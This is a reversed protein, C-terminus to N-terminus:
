AQNASAASPPISAPMLGRLSAVLAEREPQEAEWEANEEAEAKAQAAADARKAEWCATDFRLRQEVYDAQRLRSLEHAIRLLARRAAPDTEAAPASQVLCRGLALALPATLASIYPHLGPNAAPVSADEALRQMWARAERQWRWEAFGGQRWDSLNQANVPHGAFEAVLLAQVEPKANLWALLSAAQEGDDLRINIQERFALPLRATKGNRTM